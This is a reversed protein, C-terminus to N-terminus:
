KLPRQKKSVQQQLAEFFRALVMADAVDTVHLEDLCLLQARSAVEEAITELPDQEPAV